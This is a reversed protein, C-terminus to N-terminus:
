ASLPRLLGKLKAHLTANATALVDGSLHQTVGDPRTVMGGAERVLLSGAAVDWPSLGREFFADFRGAAVYALDLAASGLRRVGAVEPMVNGLARLYEAHGQGGRHPIGTAVVASALDTRASVPMRRDGLWAGHGKEAWFVERRLPDVVVGDVIDGGEERAIAVSFHPIGHVFNTTGDLPDVIFRPRDAAAPTSAGEELWFGHDAFAAALMSRVIEQAHLDASSVFDSVGKEQVDVRDLHSAAARLDDGASTAARIMAEIYRSPMRM